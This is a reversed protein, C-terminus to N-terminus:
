AARDAQQDAIADERVRREAAWALEATRSTTQWAPGAQGRLCRLFGWALAANLVVFYRAAAALRGIGPVRRLRPALAALGYGTLQAAFLGRGWPRDLLFLNSAAAAALLGPGMWRLVKHSWYSVALMGHRPLLLRWTHRVALLDGAGIRVRRRFEDRVTEPVLEWAQASPRFVVAGGGHLRMLMPTLFDDVITGPPLPRYRARRIAYIPGNAGLLTGFRSELEKLRSEYRWYVRDPNVTGAAKRLELRGVVACVTPDRHLGRVLEKVASPHFFTNADTFVAIEGDARSVLDNLVMAKGRRGTFEYLRIRPTRFRRVIACTRDSSGDSGVVISLREPPYEVELLNVIRRGIVTEENYASLIVSVTPWPAPDGAAEPRAGRLRALLTLLAPYGLYTYLLLAVSLCLVVAAFTDM